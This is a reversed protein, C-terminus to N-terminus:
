TPGLSPTPTMSLRCLSPLRQRPVEGGVIALAVDERIRLVTLIGALIFAAGPALLVNRLAPDLTPSAGTQMMAVGLVGPMLGTARLGWAELTPWAANTQRLLRSGAEAPSPSM